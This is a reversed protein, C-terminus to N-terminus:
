FDEDWDVTIIKNKIDVSIVVHKLYPILREQDKNKVIIVDNAGTAILHDVIGFEINKTNVVKLGELDTWYYENKALTPLLNKEIYIDINTYSKATEPNDCNQLKAVIGKGHTKISEVYLERWEHNLQIFWHNFNLINAIPNTFSNIKLWGIVGFPRGFKGILIKKSM